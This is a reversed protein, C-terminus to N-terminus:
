KCDNLVVELDKMDQTARDVIAKAKVEALKKLKVNEEGKRYAEYIKAHLETEMCGYEAIETSNLNVQACEIASHSHQGKRNLIKMLITVPDIVAYDYPYFENGTLDIVIVEFRTCHVQNLGVKKATCDKHEVFFNDKKFWIDDTHEGKHEPLPKQAGLFNRLRAEVAISERKISSNKRTSDSDYDIINEDLIM